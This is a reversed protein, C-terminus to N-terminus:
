QLTVLVLVLGDGSDLSSMAKGLVAGQSRERDTAKMACGAIGSTTLLDGPRIPGSTAVARCYVRGTVAVPHHGDAISGEQGMVVGPVVGGAGSVIGAVRRDYPTHSVRLTGPHEPDIVVVTGPTVDSSENIDFPEAIDSGGTLKLVACQMTAYAVVDGNDKIIMKDGVGEKFFSLYGNVPHYLMSWKTTGAVMLNIGPASGSPAEITVYTPMTGRVHLRSVPNATGVGVNGSTRVSIGEVWSIPNAGAAVTRLVMDGGPWFEQLSAGSSVDFRNWAGANWYANKVLSSYKSSASHLGIESGSTGEADVLVGFNDNLARVHLKTEASPATTGLGMSGDPTLTMRAGNRGFVFSKALGYSGVGAIWIDPGTADSGKKFAISAENDGATSNELLMM